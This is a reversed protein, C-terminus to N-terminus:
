TKGVHWTTHVSAYSMYTTLLIYLRRHHRGHRSSFGATCDAHDSTCPTSRSSRSPAPRANYQRASVSAVGRRRETAPSAAAGSRSSASASGAFAASWSRWTPGAVKQCFTCYLTFCPPTPQLMQYTRRCLSGALQVLRVLAPPSSQLCLMHCPKGAAHLICCPHTVTARRLGGKSCRMEVRCIQLLHHALPLTSVRLTAALGLGLGIGNTCGVGAAPLRSIQAGQAVRLNSCKM